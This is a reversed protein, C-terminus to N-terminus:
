VLSGALPVLKKTGTIRGLEKLGKGDVLMTSHAKRIAEFREAIGAYGQDDPYGVACILQGDDAQLLTYGTMLGQRVAEADMAFWNLAIFRALVSPDPDTSALYTLEWLRTRSAPSDAAAGAAPILLGLALAHRREIM